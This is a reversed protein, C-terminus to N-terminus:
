LGRYVIYVIYDWVVLPGKKTLHKHCGHWLARKWKRVSSSAASSVQSIRSWKGDWMENCIRLNFTQLYEFNWLEFIMQVWLVWFFFFFILGAQKNTRAVSPGQVLLKTRLLVSIIRHIRWTWQHFKSTGRCRRLHGRPVGSEQFLSGPVESSLGVNWCVWSVSRDLRDLFVRRFQGTEAFFVLNHCKGVVNKGQLVVVAGFATAEGPGVMGLDAIIEQFPGSFGAVVAFHLDVVHFIAPSESVFVTTIMTAPHPPM